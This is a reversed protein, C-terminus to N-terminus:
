GIGLHDRLRWPHHCGRPRHGPVARDAAGRYDLVSTHQMGASASPINFLGDYRASGDVTQVGAPNVESTTLGFSGNRDFTNTIGEGFHDFYIGYGARISTKGQGGWLRKAWGDANPSYAFAVRPAFDKYDYGWYPQKGNAQGDLAFSVLPEYVQGQGAAMGRQNFWDHLSITPAVQTGTTEYPPQLIAYRLGYTFTFNPKIRWQDQGYFEYEHDRFHRPVLEGQPIRNLNKDLEYNANVQPILGVLAAM